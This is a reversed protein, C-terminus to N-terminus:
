LSLSYRKASPVGVTPAYGNFHFSKVAHAVADIAFPTTRFCPFLSPDTRALPIVQRERQDENINEMLKNLVSRVSVSATNLENNGQFGWHNENKSLETEM